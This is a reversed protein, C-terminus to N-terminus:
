KESLEQFQREELIVEGPKSYDKEFIIQVYRLRHTSTVISNTLIKEGDQLSTKLDLFILEGEESFKSKSFDVDINKEQKFVRAIEELEAKTINKSLEFYAKHDDVIYYTTHNKKMTERVVSGLDANFVIMLILILALFGLLLKNSTKM